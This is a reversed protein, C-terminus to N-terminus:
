NGKIGFSINTIENYSEPTKQGNTDYFYATIKEAGAMGQGVYDSYVIDEERGQKEVGNELYYTKVNQSRINGNLDETQVGGMGTFMIGNVTQTRSIVEGTDSFTKDTISSTYYIGRSNVEYLYDAQGSVIGGSDYRVTKTIREEGSDGEYASKTFVSNKSSLDLGTIDYAEVSRLDRGEYIYDSRQQPTNTDDFMEYSYSIREFNEDGAFFSESELRGSGTIIAADAASGSINYTKIQRLKKDDYTYDSRQRPANQGDTVVYDSLRYKIKEEDKAGEYATFSELRAEDETLWASEDVGSIGYTTSKNISNDDNYSYITVNAPSNHGADSMLYNDLIYRVREEDDAGTYAIKRVLRDDTLNSKWSGSAYDIDLGTVNYSRTEDLGNGDSGYDYVTVKGAKENDDFDELVYDVKESGEAGFYVTKSILKDSTPMEDPRIIRSSGLIMDGDKTKIDKAGSKWSSPDASIDYSNIAELRGGSGYVYVNLQRPNGSQDLDQLTYGMKGGTNEPSSRKKQLSISEDKRKLADTMLSAMNEVGQKQNIVNEHKAQQEQIYAPAFSSASEREQSSPLLKKLISEKDNNLFDGAWAIDYWLFTVALFGAIMRLLLRKKPDRLEIM